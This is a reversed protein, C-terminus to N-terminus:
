YLDKYFSDASTPLKKVLKNLYYLNILLHYNDMFTNITM